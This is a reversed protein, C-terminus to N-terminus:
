SPTVEVLARLAPSPEMGHQSRLHDAYQRYAQLASARDGRGLHVRIELEQATEDLPDLHALSRAIERAHEPRGDRLAGHALYLGIERAAARLNREVPEFWNWAEYAAPRGMVLQEFIVDLRSEIAKAISRAHIARVIQPLFRVDTVVNEALRYGRQTTEIVGRAGLQKRARYICMKLASYAHDGLIGPYLRECLVDVSTDRTDTALSILLALTAGRVPVERGDLYIKGSMVEIHVKPSYPAAPEFPVWVLEVAAAERDPAPPRRGERAYEELIRTMEAHAAEIAGRATPATVGLSPFAGARAEFRGDDLRVAIVRYSLKM